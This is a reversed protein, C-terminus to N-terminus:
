CKYFKTVFTTHSFTQCLLEGQGAGIGAYFLESYLSHWIIYFQQKSFEVAFLIFLAFLCVMMFINICYNQMLM